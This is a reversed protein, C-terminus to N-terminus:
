PVMWGQIVKGNEDRIEGTTIIKYLKRAYPIYYNTEWYIGNAGGYEGYNGDWFDHGVLEIIMTHKTRSYEGFLKKFATMDGYYGEGTPKKLMDAIQLRIEARDLYAIGLDATSVLRLTLTVPKETIGKDGKIMTVPMNCSFVGAPFEYYEPLAQYHVGEIADTKEKVVEVKFKMSVPLVNGLLSIGVNTISIEKATLLSVYLSDRTKTVISYYVDHMNDDYVLRDNESCAFLTIALSLLFFIKKM